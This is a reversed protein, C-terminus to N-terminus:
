NVDNYNLVDSSNLASSPPSTQSVMFPQPEMNQVFIDAVEGSLAFSVDFVDFTFTMQKTIRSQHNLDEIKVEHAPILESCAARHSTFTRMAEKAAQKSFASGSPSVLRGGPTPVSTAHMRPCCTAIPTDFCM